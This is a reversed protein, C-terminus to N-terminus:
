HKKKSIMPLLLLLLSHEKHVKMIIQQIHM